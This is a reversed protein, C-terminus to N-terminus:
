NKETPWALYIRGICHWKQFLLFLLILVFGVAEWPWSFDEQNKEQM